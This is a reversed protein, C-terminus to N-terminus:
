AAVPPNGRIVLVPIPALRIIQEAGSGMFLRGVGRRGHTGVVILDAPWDTAAKAVANGLSEGLQDVLVCDAAVGSSKALAMGDELIAKGATRLSGLLDVYYAGYPEYGMYPLEEMLHLLRIQGDSEQALAIASALAKRATDSGDHPVLIRQYM